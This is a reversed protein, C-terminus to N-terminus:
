TSEHHARMPKAYHQMTSMFVETILLPDGSIYFLSRRGWLTKPHDPTTFARQYCPEHHHIQRYFFPSRKVNKKGYLMTEGIPRTKLSLLAEQNQEFTVRPAVTRAYIVPTDDVLHYIQRIWATHTNQDIFAMMEEDSLLNLTEDIVGLQCDANQIANLGSTLVYTDMLWHKEYTSLASMDFNDAMQWGNSKSTKHNV